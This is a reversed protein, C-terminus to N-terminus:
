DGIAYLTHVGQSTFYTEEYTEIEFKCSLDESITGYVAEFGDNLDNNTFAKDGKAIIQKRQPAKNASRYQPTAWVVVYANAPKVLGTFKFQDDDYTVGTLMGETNVPNIFALPPATFTIDEECILRGINIQTFWQSPTKNISQKFVNESARYNAYQEWGNRDSSGLQKWGNIVTTFRTRQELQSVSNPQIPSVYTRLVGTGRGTNTAVFSSGFKGRADEILVNYKVKM